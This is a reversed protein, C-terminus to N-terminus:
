LVYMFLVYMYICICTYIRIYCQPANGIRRVSGTLEIRWNQGNRVWPLKGKSILNLSKKPLGDSQSVKELLKEDEDKEKEENIKNKHKRKHSLRLFDGYNRHGVNLGNFTLTYQQRDGIKFCGIVSVSDLTYSSM